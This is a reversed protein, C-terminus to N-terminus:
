RASKKPETIRDDVLDCSFSNKNIKLTKSLKKKSTKDASLYTEDFVIEASGKMGLENQVYALLQLHDTPIKKSTRRSDDTCGQIHAKQISCLHNAMKQNVALAVEPTLKLQTLSQTSSQMLNFTHQNHLTGSTHMSMSQNVPSSEILTKSSSLVSNPGSTISTNKQSPDTPSSEHIFQGLHCAGEIKLRLELLTLNLAAVKDNTAEKALVTKGDVSIKWSVTHTDTPKSCSILFFVALGTVLFRTLLNSMLIL